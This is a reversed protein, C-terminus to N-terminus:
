WEGTTRDGDMKDRRQLRMQATNMDWRMRNSVGKMAGRGERNRVEIVVKKTEVTNIRAM